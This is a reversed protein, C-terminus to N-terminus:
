SVTRKNQNPKGGARMEMAQPVRGHLNKDEKLHEQERLLKLQRRSRWVKITYDDSVTVLM